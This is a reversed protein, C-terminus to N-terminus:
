GRLALAVMLEVGTRIAEDNFDFDPQHLTPFTTAGKPRLGLFFFCAPIERGYFSFDEGGMTPEPALEVRPKGLTDEAIGFFRATADADNVTAPYGEHWDIRAECGMARATNEVVAFLREKALKKTEARLTRVTGIFTVQEPIINDATGGHIAGVSVVISDLPSVNRSAISQLATIVHAATLIPDRGFHPYAGHSQVGKITIRFDDTSALLPGPRTAVKGVEFTPWGHLGYIREPAEGLGGANEGRLAGERVMLDGGGGGEEAPQFIFTVPRSRHMTALVKAAGILITTHGDHGCAHMVGTTTSAYPKGTAEVIPLADMDARLAVGRGGGTTAPLYGLVGTGKAFGRKVRVGSAELERAVVDSTRREEFSLEPHAHLDRRLDVLTPLMGTLVDQTQAPATQTMPM